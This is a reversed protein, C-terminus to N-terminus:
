CLPSAFKVFRVIKTDNFNVHGQGSAAAAIHIKKSVIGRVVAVVPLLCAEILLFLM